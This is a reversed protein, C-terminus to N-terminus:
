CRCTRRVRSTCDPSCATSRAYARGAADRRAVDLRARARVFGDPAVATELARVVTTGVAIVRHNEWRVHNVLAATAAPVEYWEAYPPEDKEPSAVGTHLTLPAILVGRAVLRTVLEATFPRGASPM